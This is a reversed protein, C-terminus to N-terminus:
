RAIVNTLKLTVDDAGVKVPASTQGELDGNAPMMQQSNGLRATIMVSEHEDLTGGGMDMPPFMTNDLKFHVPFSLVKVKLQAIPARSGSAPRATVYLTDFKAAQEELKVVGSIFHTAKMAQAPVPTQGMPASGNKMMQSMM